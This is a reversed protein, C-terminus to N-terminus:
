TKPEHNEFEIHQQWFEQEYKFWGHCGFPLQKHKEYYIQAKKETSFSAAEQETPVNFWKFNNKVVVGWFYDENKIFDNFLYFTNNRITLNLLVKLLNKPNIKQIFSCDELFKIPSDCYSFSNLAKLHTKVKRLSFGGNGIGIFESDNKAKTYGKYWPAGIYDYGLSCWKALEDRFVWADLEYFLIYEYKKYRKYLFPEIKLRNFMTYTAQWKPDIFDFEIQPILENYKIVDLGEPCILKIPHNGLVEFCQKLSACEEKTLESKHAIILIVVKNDM